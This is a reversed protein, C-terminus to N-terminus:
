HTELQTFGHSQTLSKLIAQTTLLPSWQKITFHPPIYLCCFSEFRQILLTSLLTKSSCKRHIGLLNFPLKKKYYKKWFRWPLKKEEETSNKEEEKEEENFLLLFISMKTLRQCLFCPWPQDIFFFLFYVLYLFM